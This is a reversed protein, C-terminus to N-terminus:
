PGSRAPPKLNGPMGLARRVTGVQGVHYAEHIALTALLSGVTEHPNGTPSLPAPADLVEQGLATLGGIIESELLSFRRRLEELSLPTRDAMAHDEDSTYAAFDGEDYLPARGLLGMMNNRVEVVHGLIWNICNGDQPYAVAQAETIGDLNRGLLFANTKLQTTLTDAFVRTEPRPTM